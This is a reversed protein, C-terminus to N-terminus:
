GNPATGRRAPAPRTTSPSNRGASDTGTSSMEASEPAAGPVMVRWAGAELSHHSTSTSRRRRRRDSAASRVDVTTDSRASAVVRIEGIPLDVTATIPEPTDFTPM